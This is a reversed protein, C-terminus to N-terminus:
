SNFNITIFCLLVIVYILFRVDIGNRYIVTEGKEEKSSPHDPTIAKHFDEDKAYTRERRKEMYDKITNKINKVDPTKPDNNNVNNNM